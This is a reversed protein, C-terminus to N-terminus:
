DCAHASSKHVIQINKTIDTPLWLLRCTSEDNVGLRCASFDGELEHLLHQRVLQWAGAQKKVAGVCEKKVFPALWGAL